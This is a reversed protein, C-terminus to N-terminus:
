KPVFFQFICILALIMFVVLLLYELYVGTIQGAKLYPKRNKDM